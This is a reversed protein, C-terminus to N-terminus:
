RKRIKKPRCGNFPPSTLDTISLPKLSKGYFSRQTLTKLVYIRNKSVGRFFIRVFIFEKKRVYRCARQTIQEFAFPTGRLRGQFDLM